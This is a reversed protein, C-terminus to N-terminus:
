TTDIRYAKSRVGRISTVNLVFISLRMIRVKTQAISKNAAQLGATTTAGLLEGLASVVDRATGLSVAIDVDVDAGVNVADCDRGGNGVGVTVGSPEEVGIGSGVSARIKAGDASTTQTIIPPWRKRETSRPADHLSRTRVGRSRLEM